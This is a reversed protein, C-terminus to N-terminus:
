DTAIFPSPPEQPSPPHITSRYAGSAGNYHIDTYYTKGAVDEYVLRATVELEVSLQGDRQVFVVANGATAGVGEIPHLAIGRGHISGAGGTEAEGRVELAPGMGINQIPLILGDVTASPGIAAVRGRRFYVEGLNSAPVIVPRHAREVQVRTLEVEEGTTRMQARATLALWFTAIALLITGVAVAVDM